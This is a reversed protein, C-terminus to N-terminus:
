GFTDIESKRVSNAARVCVFGNKAYPGLL